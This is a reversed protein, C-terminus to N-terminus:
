VVPIEVEDMMGITDRMWEDLNAYEQMSPDTENNDDWIAWLDGSTYLENVEGLIGNVDLYGTIWVVDKWTIRKPWM